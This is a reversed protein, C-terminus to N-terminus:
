GKREKKPKTQLESEGDSTMGITMGLARTTQLRGLSVM